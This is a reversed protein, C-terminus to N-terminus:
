YGYSIVKFVYVHIINITFVCYIGYINIKDIGMSSLKKLVNQGKPATQPFKWNEIKKIKRGIM